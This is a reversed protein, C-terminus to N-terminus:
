LANGVVDSIILLMFKQTSVVRLTSKATMILEGGDSPVDSVGPCPGFDANSLMDRGRNYTCENAASRHAFRLRENPQDLLRHNITSAFFITLGFISPTARSSAAEM